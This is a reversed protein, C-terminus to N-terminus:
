RHRGSDDGSSSGSISSSSDRSTITPNGGNDLWHQQQQKRMQSLTFQSLRRAYEIRAMYLVDERTLTSSRRKSRTTGTMDLFVTESPSSSQKIYKNESKLSSYDASSSSTINHKPMYLFFLFFLLPLSLAVVTITNWGFLLSM